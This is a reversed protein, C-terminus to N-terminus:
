KGFSIFFHEGEKLNLLPNDYFKKFTKNNSSDARFLIFPLSFSSSLCVSSSAGRASHAKFIRM